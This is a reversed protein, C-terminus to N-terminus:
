TSPRISCRPLHPQPPMPPSQQKGVGLHPFFAITQDIFALGCGRGGAVIKVPTVDNFFAIDFDLDVHLVGVVGFGEKHAM